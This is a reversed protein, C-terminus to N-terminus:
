YKMDYEASVVQFFTTTLHLGAVKGLQSTIFDSM